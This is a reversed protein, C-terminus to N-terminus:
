YLSLYQQAKEHNPNLEVAKKFDPYAAKTDKKLFYCAGRLFYAEADNPKMNIAATFDGIASDFDRIAARVKGRWFYADARPGGLELCKTFDNIAKTRLEHPGMEEKESFIEYASGRVYYAGASNPNLSISKNSDKFAGDIDGIMGKFYARAEYAMANKPERKILETFMQISEQPTPENASVVGPASNFNLLFASTLIFILKKFM